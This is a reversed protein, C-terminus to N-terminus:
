VGWLTMCIIQWMPMGVIINIPFTLAVSMPLYISPNAEPISARMAAPASIFSCGGAITAFVFADGWGMSGPFILNIGYIGLIGVIGWIQPMIFAILVAIGLKGGLEKLAGLQKGAALGMDILFLALVGRFMGDFFYMTREMERPSFLQSFAGIILASVLLWVAMGFVSHHLIKKADVKMGKGVGEKALAMRGFLIATLLAPSDMFPYMASMWGGFILVDSPAAAQAAHAISVGVALTASSVAGYHGGAAWADATKLGGIKKLVNASIFAITAGCIIAFVSVIAVVILLEPYAVVAEVAKMGGGLGIAALLFIALATSIQPPIAIDSKVIASVMGFAFFLIAPAFIGALVIEIVQEPNLM